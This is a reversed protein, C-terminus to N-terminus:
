NRKRACALYASNQFETIERQKHEETQFRPAEYAQFILRQKDATYGDMRKFLAVVDTIPVGAQRSTMIEKALNAWADCDASALAPQVSFAAFAALALIIRM